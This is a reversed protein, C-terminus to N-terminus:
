SSAAAWPDIVEIGCDVFDGTNRTAIPLGHSKAIAAILGDFGALRRGTRERAVALDPFVEAAARDFSFVRDGFGAHQLAASHRKLVAAGDDSRCALSVM